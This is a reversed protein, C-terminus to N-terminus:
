ARLPSAREARAPVGNGMCGRRPQWRPGAGEAQRAGLRRRHAIDALRADGRRRQRGRHRPFRPWVRDGLDERHRRRGNGPRAAVAARSVPLPRHAGTPRLLGREPELADGRGVPRRFGHAAECGRHRGLGLRLHDLPTGDSETFAVSPLVHLSLSTVRSGTSAAIAAVGVALVTCQPSQATGTADTVTVNPSGVSMVNPSLSSWTVAVGPAPHAYSYTYTSCVTEYRFSAFGVRIRRTECYQRPETRWTFVFGTFIRVEGVFLAHGYTPSTAWNPRIAVYYTSFHEIPASVTADATNVVSGPVFEWHDETWRAIALADSVLGEPFQDVDYSMTLTVPAGFTSGDPGLEIPAAWGGVGPLDGTVPEVTIDTTTALAGAPFSLAVQGDATAVEGGASGIKASEGSEVVKVAGVEVRFRVPLTRGNVLPIYEDTDVNRLAAGNSGLMVDAHGLSTARVLVRLRYPVGDELACSGELCRDTHWNVHYSGSAADYRVIESGTGETENFYAVIAGCKGDDWRCIVVTPSAEPDATGTPSPAPVMPQLFFFHPNGGHAGDLIVDAKKPAAPATPAGGQESCSITLVALCLLAGAFRVLRPRM